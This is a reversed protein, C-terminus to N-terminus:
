SVDPSGDAALRFEEKLIRRIEAGCNRLDQRAGDRFVVVAYPEMGTQEYYEEIQANYEAIKGRLRGAKGRLEQKKDSM